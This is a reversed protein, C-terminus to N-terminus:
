LDVRYGFRGLAGDDHMAASSNVVLPVSNGELTMVFADEHRIGNQGTPLWNDSRSWLGKAGSCKGCDLRFIPM